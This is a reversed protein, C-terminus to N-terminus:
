RRGLTGEEEGGVVRLECAGCAGHVELHYSRSPGLPASGFQPASNCPVYQWAQPCFAADTCQPHMVKRVLRRMLKRCRSPFIRFVTLNNIM